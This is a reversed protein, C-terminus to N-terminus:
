NKVHERPLSRLDLPQLTPGNSDEAEDAGERCGFWLSHIAVLCLSEINRMKMDEESTSWEKVHEVSQRSCPDSVRYSQLRPVTDSVVDCCFSVNTLLPKPTSAV